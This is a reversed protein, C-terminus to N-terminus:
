GELIFVKIDSAVIKGRIAMAAGVGILSPTTVTQLVITLCGVCCSRVLAVADASQM